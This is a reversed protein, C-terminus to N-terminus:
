ALGTLKHYAVNVDKRQRRSWELLERDAQKLFERQRWTAHTNVLDTKEARAM